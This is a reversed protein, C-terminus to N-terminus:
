FHEYAPHIFILKESMTKAMSPQHVVKIIVDDKFEIKIDEPKVQQLYKYLNEVAIISDPTNYLPDRGNPYYVNSINVISKVSDLFTFVIEFSSSYGRGEISKIKERVKLEKIEVSNPTVRNLAPELASSTTKSKCTLFFTPLLILVFFIKKMQNLKKILFHFTM